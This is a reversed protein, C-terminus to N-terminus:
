LAAWFPIAVPSQTSPADGPPGVVLLPTNGTPWGKFAAAQTGTRVFGRSDENEVIHFKAPFKARHGGGFPPHRITTLAAVTAVLCRLPICLQDLRQRRVRLAQLPRSM